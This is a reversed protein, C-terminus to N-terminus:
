GRARYPWAALKRERRFLEDDGSKEFANTVDIPHHIRNCRKDDGCLCQSKTEGAFRGARGIQLRRDFRDRWTRDIKSEQNEIKSQSGYHSLFFHRGSKLETMGLRASLALGARVSPGRLQPTVACALKRSGLNYAPDRAQARSSSPFFM